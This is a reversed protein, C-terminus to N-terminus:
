YKVLIQLIQHISTRRGGSECSELHQLGHGVIGKTKEEGCHTNGGNKIEGVCLLKELGKVCLQGEQLEM